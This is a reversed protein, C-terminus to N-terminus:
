LAPSAAKQADRLAELGARAQPQAPDLSLARQYEAEADAYRNQEFRVNGLNAHALADNPRLQLAAVEQAAAEELEGDQALLAGLNVHAEVFDRHARLADTYAEIADRPRNLAELSVGLDYYATARPHEAPALPLTTLILGVVFMGVSAWQTRWESLSRARRLELLTVAAFPIFLPVLPYRYRAFVFFLATSAALSPWLVHLVRPADEKRSVFMGALALPFLTHFSVTWSLARLLWSEDEYVLPEDSDALERANFVLLSKKLMLRAWRAPHESIFGFARKTWYHSVEAPGLKRGLALEALETADKREAEAGGHGFRLSQYTGDAHENNGIYFNQGFQSTTLVFEGAVSWNRAAVPTLVLTAGLLLPALRERATRALEARGRYALWLLLCPLWILANERTLTLCGLALGAALLYRRESREQSRALWYLLTTTLFLDLSAKQVIGDFFLAPGYLALLYGSIWGVRASFFARAARALLVCSCAGLVMQVVRVGILDRGFIAYELALFYPYLPAQFFAEKGWFDSAIRQAWADYAQGDGVLVHFFPSGAIQQLYLCRLLLACLFL